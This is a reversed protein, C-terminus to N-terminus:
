PREAKWKLARDYLANKKSGTIEAALKVAQKLPLEDLLIELVRQSDDESEAGTDACGEVLLVFEGRRRNEDEGLWGVAEALSCSHWQEFLKTIERAIVIRRDSGLVATMTEICEVVRHPAEYFVLLGSQRRLAELAAARAGKGAPLFGIFCFRGAEV